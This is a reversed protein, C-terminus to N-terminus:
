KKAKGAVFVLPGRGGQKVADELFWYAGVSFQSSAVSLQRSNKRHVSKKARLCDNGGRRCSLGHASVGENEKEGEGNNEDRKTGGL